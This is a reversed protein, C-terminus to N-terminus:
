GSDKCVASRQYEALPEYTTEPEDLNRINMECRDELPLRTHFAPVSPCRSLDALRHIKLLKCTGFSDRPLIQESNKRGNRFEESSTPINGFFKNASRAIPHGCVEGEASTM